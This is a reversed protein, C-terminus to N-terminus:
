KLCNSPSMPQSQFVPSAASSTPSASSAFRATQIRARSRPWCVCAMRSTPVKAYYHQAELTGGYHRRHTTLWVYVGTRVYRRVELFTYGPCKLQNEIYKHNAVYEHPSHKHARARVRSRHTPHQRCQSGMRLRSRACLPWLDSHGGIEALRSSRRESM